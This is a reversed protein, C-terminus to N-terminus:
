YQNRSRIFFFALVGGGAILLIGVALLLPSRGSAEGPEEPAVIRSGPQAAFDIVITDGLEVDLPVNLSTTPNYGEPIGMSLNYEGAPVDEFCVRDVLDPDGGTTELTESFSGTRNSLSAVGGELYFETEGRMQNGDLDEYLVVCVQANGEFPTPTPEGLTATPQPGTSTPTAPDVTAIVLQQEPYLTCESDLGNLEVIREIPVQNQFLLYISFCTDGQKVTYIIQGSANPTPTQFTTQAQVGTGAPKTLSLLVAALLSLIIIPLIVRIKKM